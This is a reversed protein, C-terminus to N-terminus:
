SFSFSFETDKGKSEVERILWSFTKTPDATIKKVALRINVRDPSKVIEVYQRLGLTKVVKKRVDKSATASLALLPM